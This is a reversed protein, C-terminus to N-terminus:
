NPRRPTATFCEGDQCPLFYPSADVVRYVAGAALPAVLDMSRPSVVDVTPAFTVRLMPAPLAAGAASVAELVVEYGLGHLAPDRHVEMQPQNADDVGALVEACGTAACAAFPGGWRSIRESRRAALDHDRPGLWLVPKDNDIVARFRSLFSEGLMGEFDEQAFRRDALGAFAMEVTIGADVLALKVAAGYGPFQVTTGTVDIHELPPGFAAGAAKALAPWIRSERTGPDVVFRGAAQGAVAAAVIMLGKQRVSPVPHLDAPLKQHGSLALHLVGGDRDIDIVITITLLDGGLIGYVPQGRFTLSGAPVGLVVFNQLGLDGAQAAQVEYIPRVVLHDEETQVHIYGGEGAERKHYLDLQKALGEDITSTAMPNVLFLYPGKGNITVPVVLQDHELPAVLPLTWAKGGKFYVPPVLTCASACVIALVLCLTRM